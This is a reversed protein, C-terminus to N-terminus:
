PLEEPTSGGAAAFAVVNGSGPDNAARPAERVARRCHAVAKALHKEVTRPSIGMVRAIENYSLHHFKHLILAERPKPPLTAVALALKHLEQRARAVREPSPAPDEPDQPQEELNPEFLHHRERRHRDRILNDAIRVLYARPNDVSNFRGARQARLFTEQVVDEIDESVGIRRRVFARLEERHM